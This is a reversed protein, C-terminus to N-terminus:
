ENAREVILEGQKIEDLSNKLNKVENKLMRQEAEIEILRNEVELFKQAAYQDTNELLIVGGRKDMKAGKPMLINVDGVKRIEMGPPIKVGPERKAEQTFALTASFFFALILIFVKVSKM